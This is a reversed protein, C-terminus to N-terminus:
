VNLCALRNSRVISLPPLEVVKTGVVAIRGSTVALLHDRPVQSCASSLDVFEQSSTTFLFYSSTTSFTSAPIHTFVQTQNISRYIRMVNSQPRCKYGMWLAVVLCSQSEFELSFPIRVCFSNQYSLFVYFQGMTASRPVAVSWDAVEVSEKLAMPLDGTTAMPMSVPRRCSCM